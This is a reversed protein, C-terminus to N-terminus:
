RSAVEGQGPRQAAHRRALWMRWAYPPHTLSLWAASSGTREVWSALQEPGHLTVAIHDSGLEAMWNKVVRHLVLGLLVVGWIWPTLTLLMPIIVSRELWREALGRASDNRLLHALEHAIVYGSEAPRNYVERSVGIRARSGLRVAHDDLEYDDRLWIAFDTIGWSAVLATVEPPSPVLTAGKPTPVRARRLRVALLLLGPLLIAAALGVVLEPGVAVPSAALIFALTGLFWLGSFVASLVHIRPKPWALGTQRVLMARFEDSLVVDPEPVSPVHNAAAALEVATFDAGLARLIHAAGCEPTRAMALVLHGSRLLGRHKLRHSERFATDLLKMSEATYPVASKRETPHSAPRRSALEGRVAEFHIGQQALAKVVADTHDTLLGLLLTGTDLSDYRLGRAARQAMVLAQRAEETFRDLM